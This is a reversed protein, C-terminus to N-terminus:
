GLVIHEYRLFLAKERILVCQANQHESMDVVSMKAQVNRGRFIGFTSTEAMVKFKPNPINAHMFTHHM